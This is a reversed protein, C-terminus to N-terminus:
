YNAGGCSERLLGDVRFGRGERCVSLERSDKERVFGTAAKGPRPWWDEEPDFGM